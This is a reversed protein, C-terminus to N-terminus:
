RTRSRDQGVTAEAANALSFLLAYAPRERLKAEIVIASRPNLSKWYTALDVMGENATEMALALVSTALGISCLCKELASKELTAGDAAFSKLANLGTNEDVVTIEVDGEDVTIEVDGEDVEAVAGLGDGKAAKKKGKKAPTKKATKGEAKRRSSAPGADRNSEKSAGSKTSSTKLPPSKKDPM